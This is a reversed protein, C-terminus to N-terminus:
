VLNLIDAIDDIIHDAACAEMQERTGNGYTVGCTRVGANHGMQIDYIDDGVMLTDEPSIRFHSLTTDVMDPYPKAREVDNVTVIHSIYSMLQMDRLFAELSTRGRSTAISLLYGRQHLAQLTESVHPFMGVAGPRNDVAFIQEYTEACLDGTASDIPLLQMFTEKLPLGIMARCQERSCAPLGVARLTKMMTQTILPETDALTGDFDFIILKM